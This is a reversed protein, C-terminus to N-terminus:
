ARGSRLCPAGGTKVESHTFPRGDDHCFVHPSRLHRHAKLAALAERTLPVVRERGGKPLVEQGRWRTRRVRLQGHTTDVDTWRLGLLEGVRLGTRLALLVFTRWEPATAAVM